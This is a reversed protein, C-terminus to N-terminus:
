FLIIVMRTVASSKYAKEQLPSAERSVKICEGRSAERKAHKEWLNIGPSVNKFKPVVPSNKIYYQVPSLINDYKSPTTKSPTLYTKSPTTLSQTSKSPTLRSPKTAPPTNYFFRKKSPVKFPSVDSTASSPPVFRPSRLKFKNEKSELSSKKKGAPSLSRATNVIEKKAETQKKDQKTMTDYNMGYKILYDMEELTDNFKLSDDGASHRSSCPSDDMILSRREGKSNRNGEREGSYDEVEELTNNCVNSQDQTNVSETNSEYSNCTDYKDDSQTGTSDKAKSVDFYKDTDRSINLCESAKLTDAAVTKALPSFTILNSSENLHDLRKKNLIAQKSQLPSMVLQEMKVFSEDSVQRWKPEPSLITYNFSAFKDKEPSSECEFEVDPVPEDELLPEGNKVRGVISLWRDSISNDLSSCEKATKYDETQVTDTLENGGIITNANSEWDYMEIIKNKEAINPDSKIKLLQLINLNLYKETSCRFFSVLMFNIKNFFIHLCSAILSESMPFILSDYITVFLSLLPTLLM